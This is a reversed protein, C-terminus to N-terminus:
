LVHEEEVNVWWRSSSRFSLRTYMQYSAWVEYDIEGNGDVDIDSMMEDVEEESWQMGM